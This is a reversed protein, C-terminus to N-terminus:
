AGAGGAAEVERDDMIRYSYGQETLFLQRNQAFDQDATDRTVLSYFHAQGGDSKPRLIRGLRQAEEQRSGFTGSVQVLVSADPLDIAFNGVKSVVLVKIEGRRFKGYLDSREDNPTRGTILPARVLRAIEKLQRLYQGIVLVLDGDHRALLRRLTDMKRPNESALRFKERKDATAYRLRQHEDLLPVRVETCSAQAIYGQRELEKWPVDYRKPGILTFVEDEKGDERVLTATLGLRRTAQIEATVRFVPAPLLHVEDYVILGWDNGSFLGFHVFTETKSRRYTLIQYTSLTVPRIEKREGTYEGIDSPDIRCKALLEDRWQRVATLNTTLVLTKRGVRAMAGMGVITKGAGCPLVVVGSGGRASGDAWFADVAAEQYRRVSFRGTDLEIALPGGDVFGALDEVPFGIRIMAQKVHGRMAPDVEIRQLSLREVLYRRVAKNSWAEQLLAADESELILRDGERVLRVRGYRAAYDRIDRVINGPVPYKALSTLAEVMEEASHGAAKANWISLPTIRYTHIHEPSKVLEAFVALADRADAYRPGDVELLVTRDSQVILPNDKRVDM